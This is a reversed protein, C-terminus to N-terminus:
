CNKEIVEYANLLEGSIHWFFIWFSGHSPAISLIILNKILGYNNQDM